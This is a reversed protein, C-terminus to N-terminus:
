HFGGREHKGCSSALKSLPRIALTTSAAAGSKDTDRFGLFDQRAVALPETAVCRLHIVCREVSDRAEEYTVLDRLYRMVCLHRPRM